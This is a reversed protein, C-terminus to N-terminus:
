INLFVLYISIKLSAADPLLLEDSNLTFLVTDIFDLCRVSELLSAYILSNKM